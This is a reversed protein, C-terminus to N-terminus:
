QSRQASDARSEPLPAPNAITPDGNTRSERRLTGITFAPRQRRPKGPAPVDNASTSLQQHAHPRQRRPKKQHTTATPPRLDGSAPMLRQRRARPATPAAKELVPVDNASTSLQQHACTATQPRLLATPAAKEPARSRRGTKRVGGGKRAACPAQREAQGKAARVWGEEMTRARRRGTPRVGGGKRAACPAQREAQGKAARGGGKRRAAHRKAAQCEGVFISSYYRKERRCPRGRLM